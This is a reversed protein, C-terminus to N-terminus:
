KKGVYYKTGGVMVFTGGKKGKQLPGTPYKKGYGEKLYNAPGGARSHGAKGSMGAAAGAAKMGVIERRNAHKEGKTQAASHAGKRLTVKGAKQAEAPKPKIGAEAAKKAAVAAAYSNDAPRHPAPSPARTAAKKAPAAAAKKAAAAAIFKAAAAAAISASTPKAEAAKAIVPGGKRSMGVQKGALARKAGSNGPLSGKMRTGRRLQDRNLVEKKGFM